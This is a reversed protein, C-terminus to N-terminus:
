IGKEGQFIDTNSIVGAIKWGYADAGFEGQGVWLLASGVTLLGPPSCHEGRM